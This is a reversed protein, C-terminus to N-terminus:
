ITLMAYFLLSMGVIWLSLLYAIGIAASKALARRWRRGHLAKFARVAYWTMYALMAMGVLIAPKNPLFGTALTSVFFM